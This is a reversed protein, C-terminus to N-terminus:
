VPSRSMVKMLDFEDCGAQSPPLSLSATPLKAERRVSPDDLSTRPAQRDVLVKYFWLSAVGAAPTCGVKANRPRTSVSPVWVVRALPTSTASAARAPPPGEQRAAGWVCMCVCVCVCVRLCARVRAGVCVCVCVCVCMPWCLHMHLHLPTGRRPAMPTVVLLTQKTCEWQTTMKSRAHPESRQQLEFVFLSNVDLRRQTIVIRLCMVNLPSSIAKWYLLVDTWRVFQLHISGKPDGPFFIRRDLCIFINSLWPKPDVRRKVRVIVVRLAAWHEVELLWWTMLTLWFFSSSIFVNWTQVMIWVNFRVGPM